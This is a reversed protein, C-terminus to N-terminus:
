TSSMANARQHASCRSRWAGRPRRMTSASSRWCPTGRSTSSSSRPASSASGASSPSARGPLSASRAARGQFPVQPPARARHRWPAGARRPKGSAGRSTRLSARRRTPRGGARRPARNSGPSNRPVREGISDLLECQPHRGGRDALYGSVRFLVLRGSRSRYGIIEGVEWETADVFRRSVRRRPPMPSTLQSKLKALVAAQKLELGQERWLELNSGDDDRAVGARRGAAGAPRRRWQTHALALWLVPASDPDRQVNPEDRGLLRETAVVDALGEGLLDVYRDRVDCALDDSYIAVGWAGM